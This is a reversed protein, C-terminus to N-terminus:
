QGHVCRSLHYGPRKIDPAISSHTPAAAGVLTGTTSTILSGWVGAANRERPPRTEPLHLAKSMDALRRGPASALDLFSHTPSDHSHPEPTGRGSGSRLTSSMSVTDSDHDYLTLLAALIGGHARTMPSSTDAAAAMETDTDENKSPRAPTSRSRRRFFRRSFPNVSHARVVTAARAESDSCQGKKDESRQMPLGAREGSEIFAEGPVNTEHSLIKPSNPGPSSGASSPTSLRSRPPPATVTPLPSASRSRHRELAHTLTQFAAPQSFFSSRSSPCKLYQRLVCM